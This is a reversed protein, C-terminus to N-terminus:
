VKIIEVLGTGIVEYTNPFDKKDFSLATVCDIGIGYKVGSQKMEKRLLTHRHRETYHPEIITDKLIGLSKILTGKDDSLRLYEGIVASGASEGILHSATMILHNLKSNSRINSLLNEKEKGGSILIVPDDARHLDDQRRADLVDIGKLDMKSHIWDVPWHSEEGKPIITRAFPVHLLQIPKLALIVNNILAIQPTVQNLNVEAGGFLYLKM